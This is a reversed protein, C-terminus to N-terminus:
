SKSSGEAFKKMASWFLRSEVDTCTSLLHDLAETFGEPDTRLRARLQEVTIKPRKGEDNAM